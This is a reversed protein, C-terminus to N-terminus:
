VPDPCTPRAPRLHLQRLLGRRKLEVLWSSIESPRLSDLRRRGFAEVIRDVHVQAQRHNLTEPHRLGADLDRVMAGCHDQRGETGGLYGDATEVDGPRAVNRM